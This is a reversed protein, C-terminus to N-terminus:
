FLMMKETRKVADMRNITLTESVRDFRSCLEGVRILSEESVQLLQAYRQYYTENNLEDKPFMEREPYLYSEIYQTSYKNPAYHTLIMNKTGDSMKTYKGKLFQFVDDKYKKLNFIYVGESDEVETFSEFLENRFLVTQEFKIYAPDERLKYVCVLKYENIGVEGTWSLFTNIPAIKHSDSIQLLPYLFKSSKQLYIDITREDLTYNKKTSM